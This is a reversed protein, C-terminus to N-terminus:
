KNKLRELEAEVLRRLPSDAPADKLAERYLAPAEDPSKLVREYRQALVYAFPGRISPDLIEALGKWGFPGTVGKWALAFKLGEASGFKNALVASFTDETLKWAVADQDASLDGPMAGQRMMEYAMLVLPARIMEPYSLDEFAIRRAWERGRTSRWLGRLLAPQPTHHAKLYALPSDAATTALLRTMVAEGEADKLENTLSALILGYLVQTMGGNRLYNEPKAAAPDDPRALRVWNGYLGDKWARMAGDSDGARDRLFGLVLCAGAHHHYGLQGAAGRQLLERVDKEANAWDQKAVHLRARALLLYSRQGNISGDKDLLRGNVLNMADFHQGRERLLWAYEDMFGPSDPYAAILKAFQQIAEENRGACRYAKCLAYKIQMTGYYNDELLEEIAVAQEYQRAREPHGVFKLLNVGHNDFHYGKWITQRLESSV